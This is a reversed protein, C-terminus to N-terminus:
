HRRTRPPPCTRPHARPSSRQVLGSSRRLEHGRGRRATGRSSTPSSTSSKALSAAASVPLTQGRGWGRSGFSSASADGGGSRGGCGALM